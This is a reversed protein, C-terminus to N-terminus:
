GEFNFTAQGHLFENCDYRPLEFKNNIIDTRTIDRSSVSFGYKYNQHALIELVREDYSQKGGYPFCFGNLENPYVLEKLYLNSTSLEDLLNSDELNSLLNHSHAHCGMEMGNAQMELINKKSLYYTEALDEEPFELFHEMVRDLVATKRSPNLQYNVIRKFEKISEESHQNIYTTLAFKTNASDILDNKTIIKKIYKVLDNAEYRGLLYHTRHVDLLKKSIFPLTSIFFIGWLGKSKLYPYVYDYHDRVGDDFTLIMGKDITKGTKLCYYFEEQNLIHYEKSLFDIQKQFDSFDLHIFKPIESSAERIYHYMIAKM